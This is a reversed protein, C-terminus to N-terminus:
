AREGTVEMAPFFGPKATGQLTDGKRTLDFKLTLSMPKTIEQTWQLRDGELVPDILPASDGGLSATGRVKGGDTVVELRVSQQGMPSAVRINWAGDFSM